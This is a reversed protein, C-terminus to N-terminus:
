RIWRFGCNRCAGEGRYEEVDRSHCRGCKPLSLFMVIAFLTAIAGVVLGAYPFLSSKTLM